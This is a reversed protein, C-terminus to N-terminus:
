VEVEAPEPLAKANDVQETMGEAVRSFMPRAAAPTNVRKMNSFQFKDDREMHEKIEPSLVLWKSCRRFVTKKAMENYDTVWPGNNGTKSRNKISDIEERSMVETKHSGDKKVVKVYAAIVEGRPKRFDIQHVAVEGVSYVFEDNDCVVDAHITAVDGNRQVLEVLGKYDIVLTCEKGYPILYASRGDPELGAASLELLCKFLSTQTCNALSPQDNLATICIRIFRESDLHTPLAMEVQAKFDEGTLLDKVAKQKVAITNENSM